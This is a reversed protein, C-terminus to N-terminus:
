DEMHKRCYRSINNLYALISDKYQEEADIDRAMQNMNAKFIVVLLITFKLFSIIAISLFVILVYGTITNLPIFVALGVAIFNEIMGVIMVDILPRDLKKKLMEKSIGIETTALVTIVATYVGITIAFFAAIGNLRDQSLYSSLDIDSLFKLPACENWTCLVCLVIAVGIESKLNRLTGIIGKMNCGAM